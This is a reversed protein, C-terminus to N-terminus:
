QFVSNADTLGVNFSVAGLQLQWINQGDVAESVTMPANVAAVTAYNGLDIEHIFSETPGGVAHTQDVVETVLSTQPFAAMAVWCSRM